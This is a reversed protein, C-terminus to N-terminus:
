VLMYPAALPITIPNEEVILCTSSIQLFLDSHCALLGVVLKWHLGQLDCSLGPTLNL